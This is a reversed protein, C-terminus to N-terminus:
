GYLCGQCPRPGGSIQWESDEAGGRPTSRRGRRWGAGGGQGEVDLAQGEVETERLAQGQGRRWGAGGGQAEVDLVQGEVDLVQGEVDTERLALGQPAPPEPFPRASAPSSSGCRPRRAAMSPPLLKGHM